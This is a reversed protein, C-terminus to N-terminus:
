VFPKYFCFECPKYPINDSMLDKRIKIFNENMFLSFIDSQKVDGLIFDKHSKVDSRMNCCPMVLGNYDIYIDRLPYFCPFTRKIQTIRNDDISGARNGGITRPNWARYTFDLGDYIFKIAYQENDNQIQKYKLGLKLAMKDFAPKIKKPEFEESKGFYYSMLIFSVGVERLDNLYDRDLYDGNTFIGLTAKPLAIRAEKVRKLILDKDALPENFRHFNLTESYDISKLDSIIKQYVSENLRINQSKRDIFANPCFWCKRNCFSAVEIEILKVSQKFLQKQLNKDNTPTILKAYHELLESKSQNIENQMADILTNKIRIKISKPIRKSISQRINMAIFYGKVKSKTTIRSGGGMLSQKFILIM